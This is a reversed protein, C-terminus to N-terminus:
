PYWNDQWAPHLEFPLALAQMAKFALISELPWCGQGRDRAIRQECDALIRRQSAIRARIRAPCPCCCARGAAGAEQAPCDLEHFLASDAVEEDWRARLFSALDSAIGM